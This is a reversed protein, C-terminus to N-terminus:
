GPVTIASWDLRPDERWTTGGHSTLRASSPQRIRTMAAISATSTYRAPSIYTTVAATTMASMTLAVKAGITMPRRPRPQDRIFAALTTVSAARTTNTTTVARITRANMGLMAFRPVEILSPTVLTLPTSASRFTGGFTCVVIWFATSVALAAMAPASPLTTPVIEVATM